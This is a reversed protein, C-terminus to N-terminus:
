IDQSINVYRFTGVPGGDPAPGKAGESAWPPVRATRSLLSRSPLPILTWITCQYLKTCTVLSGRGPARPPWLRSGPQLNQSEELRPISSPRISGDLNSSLDESSEMPETPMPRFNHSFYWALGGLPSWPCQKHPINWTKSQRAGLATSGTAAITSVAM